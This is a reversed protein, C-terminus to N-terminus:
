IKEDTYVENKRYNFFCLLVCNYQLFIVTDDILSSIVLLTLWITLTKENSNSFKIFAKLYLYIFFITFVYGYRILLQLYANDIYSYKIGKINGYRIASSGYMDIDNGFLTISNEKLVENSIRLRGTLKEDLTKYFTSNENYNLTLFLSIFICSSLLILFGIKYTKSKIMSPNIKINYIYFFLLVFVLICGNKINTLRFILLNILIIIITESVKLKKGKKEKLYLFFFFLELFFVPLKSLYSFGYASKIVGNARVFSYNTILGLKCIVIVFIVCIIIEYFSCKAIKEFKIGKAAYMVLILELVNRIDTFSYVIVGIGLILIDRILHKKEFKNSLLIKSIFLIYSLYMFVNKINAGALVGLTSDVLTIKYFIFIIYALFFLIDDVKAKM